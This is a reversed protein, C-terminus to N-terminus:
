GLVAPDLVTRVPDAAKRASRIASAQRLAAALQGGDAREARVLLRQEGDRLQVPGILDASGPLDLLAAMEKVAAATGSLAAMRTAPPFRLERREALEREASGVPDWRILAQVAPISADAGIVVVGDSRVLAAANFWRRVAEEGARLDARDLLAWGDLLLAAGYGGEAVPEAGPTAVVLEATAEVRDLVADGGSTRVTTASFGRGLEEATRTAGVIQARLQRRGCVPCQWHTAPRACWRCSLGGRQSMGLPGLCVACRAPTRDHACALAPAYGSRPVQVLVPRGGALATRATRLALSSLRASGVAADREQERDDGAAHVTPTATRVTAREASVDRAWGSQVLLQAEATRAYGGVILSAKEQACRLALVDRVHPYPARPEIHLDDGDDWVAVLGLEAVPAFVASRTGIVARVVGRRVALWRRYRQAPGLDASLAVYAQRGVAGLLAQDLRGLDRGDPVVVLAGRGGALTAQVAEALRAPWDEGPLASWVCRASRGARAADLLAGGFRYRSWGGPAPADPAPAPAPETATEARAHRAPVGLRVVDVFNGAWRDAVTRFLEATQPTLVPETGVVREIRALAGRHKSDAVRALVYGDVLRGAFRVRVRMGPRVADELEPPVLYDFPRDLHPLAVDVYVRAVAVAAATDAVSARDATPNM